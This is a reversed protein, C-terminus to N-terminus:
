SAITTRHTSTARPFIAERSNGPMESPFDQVVRTAADSLMVNTEAMAAEIMTSKDVNDILYPTCTDDIHYAEAQTLLQCHFLLVSFVMAATILVMVM